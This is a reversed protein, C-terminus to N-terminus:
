DKNDKNDKDLANWDAILKSWMSHLKAEDKPLKSPMNKDIYVSYETPAKNNTTNSITGYEEKEELTLLGWRRGVERSVDGIAKSGIEDSVIKHNKKVFSQYATTKKAVAKTNLLSDIENRQDKTLKINLINAIKTASAM